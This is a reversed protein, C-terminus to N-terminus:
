RKKKPLVVAASFMGSSRALQVKGVICCDPLLKGLFKSQLGRSRAVACYTLRSELTLHATNDFFKDLARKKQWTKSYSKL